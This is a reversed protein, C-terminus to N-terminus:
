LLGVLYGLSGFVVGTLIATVIVSGALKFINAITGTLLGETKYEIACSTLSNAFGTIPVITGCGALQGLKDYLGFATLFSGLLIMIQITLFNIIENDLSTLLLLEKIVQAILCISGGILFAYIFSKLYDTKPNTEKILRSNDNM